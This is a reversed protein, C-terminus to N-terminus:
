IKWSQLGSHDIILPEPYLGIKQLSEIVYYRKFPPVFFLFYGGGGTGLLRGGTAGANIAIDYYSDLKSNSVKSDIDKKIQWTKDLLPGISDFNGHLMASKMNKAIEKLLESNQKNIKKLDNQSIIKEQIISGLHNNGTYCLIFREELENLYEAEIRLPMVETHNSDFEMVNIGGFVTSYQDQWGGAIGLEIREAEFALESISYRDLRTNHFENFCGIVSSLLSASGGLGSKPPYDCGLELDFGYNPKLLKIGAKILDLQGNYEFEDVNNASVYDKYDHSYITVKKDQRKRMTAHSYKSITCSLGLGGNEMFYETFDTGGGALSVRAPTRARSVYKNKEFRYNIDAIDVLFGKHDLVPIKKIKRDLLKLVDTRVCGVKLFIFNTTMVSEIPVSLDETELLSKRVDGDTVTGVVKNLRNVVFAIGLGTNKLSEMVTRIDNTEKVISNNLIEKNMKKTM